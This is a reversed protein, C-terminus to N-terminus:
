YNLNPQYNKKLISQPVGGNSLIKSKLSLNDLGLAAASAHATSSNM